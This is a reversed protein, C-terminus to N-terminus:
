RDIEWLNRQPDRSRRAIELAERNTLWGQMAANWLDKRGTRRLALALLIERPDVDFAEAALLIAQRRIRLRERAEAGTIVRM